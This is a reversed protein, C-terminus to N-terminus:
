ISLTSGAVVHLQMSRKDAPLLYELLSGGGALLLQPEADSLGPWLADGPLQEAAPLALSGPPLAALCDSVHLLAPQACPCQPHASADAPWCAVLRQQLTLLLSCTIISDSQHRWAVCAGTNTVAETTHDSMHEPKAVSNDVNHLLMVAEVADISQHLLWMRHLDEVCSVAIVKANRALRTM